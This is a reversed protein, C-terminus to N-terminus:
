GADEPRNWRGRTAVLAIGEVVLVVAPWLFALLFLVDAKPMLFLWLLFLFLAADHVVAFWLACRRNRRYLGVTVALPVCFGLLFVLAPQLGFDMPPWFLAVTVVLCWSGLALRLALVPKSRM